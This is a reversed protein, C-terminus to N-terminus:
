APCVEILSATQLKQLLARAEVPNLSYHKGSDMQLIATEAGLGCSIQQTTLAIVSDDLIQTQTAESM